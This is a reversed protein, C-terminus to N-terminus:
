WLDTESSTPEDYEGEDYLQDEQNFNTYKIRYDGIVEEDGDRWPRSDLVQGTEPDLTEYVTEVSGQDTRQARLRAVIPPIDQGPLPIDGESGLTAMAGFLAIVVEKLFKGAKYISVSGELKLRNRSRAALLALVPLLGLAALYAWPGVPRAPTEPAPAPAVEAARTRSPSPSSTATPSPVPTYTPVPQTIPVRVPTQSAVEPGEDSAVVLVYLNSNSFFGPTADILSVEITDSGSVFMDGPLSIPDLHLIRERDASRFDVQVVQNTSVSRAKLVDDVCVGALAEGSSSIFVQTGPPRNIVASAQHFVHPITISAQESGAPLLLVSQIIVEPQDAIAPLTAPCGGGQARVSELMGMVVLLTALLVSIKIKM